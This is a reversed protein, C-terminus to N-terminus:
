GQPPRPASESYPLPPPEPNRKKGAIDKLLGIIEENQKELRDMHVMARDMYPGNRRNIRRLFFYLFGFIILLPLLGAIIKTGSSEPVEDAAWAPIAILLSVASMAITETIKKMIM